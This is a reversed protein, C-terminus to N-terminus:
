IGSWKFRFLRISLGFPLNANITGMLNMAERAEEAYRPTPSHRRAVKVKDRAAPAVALL